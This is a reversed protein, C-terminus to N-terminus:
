NDVTLQYAALFGSEVADRIKGVEEADGLVFVREFAGRIEEVLEERKKRGLALVICDFERTVKEGTKTNEFVAKGEEVAALKHNPYLQVKYEQLRGLLDWLYQFYIGPGIEAQLEFVSVENGREALYHATELGILGAGVVAAKKGRIDMEKELIADATCVGEWELGPITGPM